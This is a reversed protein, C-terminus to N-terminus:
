DKFHQAAKRLLVDLVAKLDIRSSRAIYIWARTGLLDDHSVHLEFAGIRNKM